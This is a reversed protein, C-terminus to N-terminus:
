LRSVEAWSLNFGVAKNWLNKLKLYFIFVFYTEWDVMNYVPLSKKNYIRQAEDYEEKFFREDKAM